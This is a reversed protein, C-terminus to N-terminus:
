LCIGSGSFYKVCEKFVEIVGRSNFLKATNQSNVLGNFREKCKFKVAVIDNINIYLPSILGGWFSMNSSGCDCRLKCIRSFLDFYFFSCVRIINDSFFKWKSANLGM